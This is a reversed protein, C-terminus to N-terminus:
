SAFLAEISWSFFQPNYINLFILESKVILIQAHM